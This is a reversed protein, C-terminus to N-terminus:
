VCVSCVCAGLLCFFAGRQKAPEEEEEEKEKGGEEERDAEECVCVCFWLVM